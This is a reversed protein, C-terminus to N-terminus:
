ALSLTFVFVNTWQLTLPSRIPSFPVRFAEPVFRMVFDHVRQYYYQDGIVSDVKYGNKVFLEEWTERTEAAQAGDGYEVGVGIKWSWGMSNRVLIVFKPDDGRSVRRMEQLAKDRNPIRELAGIMTVRDMTNSEFPINEASGVKADPLTTNTKGYLMPLLENIATESIDVGHVDLGMETGARLLTGPGCAVDLISDGPQAGALELYLDYYKWPRLYALGQNAYIEDFWQVIVGQAKNTEEYSQPSPANLQVGIYGALAVVVAATAIILSSSSSNKGGM